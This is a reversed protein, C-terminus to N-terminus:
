RGGGAWSAIESATVEEEAWAQRHQRLLDRVRGHGLRAVARDVRVSNDGLKAGGQSYSVGAVGGLERDLRLQREYLEDFQSDVALGRVNVQAEPYRRPRAQAGLKAASVLWGGGPGERGDRVNHARDCVDATARTLEHVQPSDAPPWACLFVRANECGVRGRAEGGHEGGGGGGRAGALFGELRSAAGQSEGGARLLLRVVRPDGLVGLVSEDGGVPGGRVEAAVRLVRERGFRELLRRRRGVGVVGGVGEGAASIAAMARGM